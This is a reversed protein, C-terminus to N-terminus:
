PQHQISWCTEVKVRHFTTVPHLLPFSIPFFLFVLISCKAILAGPRLRGWKNGSKFWYLQEPNQINQINQITPIHKVWQNLKKPNWWSPRHQCATRVGFAAVHHCELRLRDWHTFGDSFVLFHQSFLFWFRVNWNWSRNQSAPWMAKSYKIQYMYVVAISSGAM